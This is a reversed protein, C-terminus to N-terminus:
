VGALYETALRLRDSVLKEDATSRSTARIFDEDALLALYQQRIASYSAYPPERLDHATTVAPETPSIGTHYAGRGRSM